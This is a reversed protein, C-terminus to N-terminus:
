EDDEKKDTHLEEGEFIKGGNEIIIEQVRKGSIVELELLEATMQEMANNNDRLSQLVAKYRQDLTNKIHMDLNHAM